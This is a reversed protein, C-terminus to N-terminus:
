GSAPTEPCCQAEHPNAIRDPEPECVGRETQGANQHSLNIDGDPEEAEDHEQSRKKEGSLGKALCPPHIRYLAVQGGATIRESMNIFSDRVLSLILPRPNRLCQM